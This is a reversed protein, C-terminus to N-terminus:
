EDTQEPAPNLAISTDEYFSGMYDTILQQMAENPKGDESLYSRKMEFILAAVITSYTIRPGRRQKPMQMERTVNLQHCTSFVAALLDPHMSFNQRVAEAGGKIKSM